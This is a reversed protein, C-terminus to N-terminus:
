LFGRKNVKIKGLYRQLWDKIDGCVVEPKLPKGTNNKKARDNFQTPHWLTEYNGHGTTGWMSMRNWPGDRDRRHREMWLFGLFCVRGTSWWTEQHPHDPFQSQLACQSTGKAELRSTEKPQALIQTKNFYTFQEQTGWLRGSVSHIFYCHTGANWCILLAVTPSTQKM